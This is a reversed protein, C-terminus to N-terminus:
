VIGMDEINIFGVEDGSEPVVEEPIKCYQVDLVSKLMKVPFRLSVEDSPEAASSVAGIVYEEPLFIMGFGCRPFLLAKDEWSGRVASFDAVGRSPSVTFISVAGSGIGSGTNSGPSGKSTRTSASVTDEGTGASETCYWSLPSSDVRLTLQIIRWNMRM